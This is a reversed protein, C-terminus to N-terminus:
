YLKGFLEVYTLYVRLELEFQYYAPQMYTCLKYFAKNHTKEKLHALEHVLIMTLFELPVQKFVSAIKIENKAKLQSGQVRSIFSHTGLAHQIVQIKDDYVIKSIPQSQKLYTNKLELGYTYLAKDTTISHPAPYKKLLLGRLQNKHILQRIPDTISAPYGALYKLTQM